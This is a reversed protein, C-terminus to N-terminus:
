QEANSVFARLIEFLRQCQGSSSCVKGSDLKELIKPAHKTKHYPDSGAADIDTM